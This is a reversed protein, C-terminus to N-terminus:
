RPCVGAMYALRGLIEDGHPTIAVPYSLLGQDPPYFWVVNGNVRFEDGLIMHVNDFWEQPVAWDFSGREDLAKTRKDRDREAM